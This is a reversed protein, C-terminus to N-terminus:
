AKSAGAAAAAPNLRVAALESAKYGFPLPGHAHIRVARAAEISDELTIAHGGEISSVDIPEVAKHAAELPEAIGLDRFLPEAVKVALEVSERLEKEQQEPSVSVLASVGSSSTVQEAKEDLHKEALYSQRELHVAVHGPVDPIVYKFLVIAGILVHELGIFIQLRNQYTILQFFGKDNSTFMILALNTIVAVMAMAEFSALWVGINRALRPRPRKAIYLLKRSDIWMEVSASVLAVPAALPWSSLFLFSYGWLEWCELYDGSPNYAALESEEEAEPLVDKLKKQAMLMEKRAKGSCCFGFCSMIRPLIIPLFIEQMNGVFLRVILITALQGGLEQMCDPVGEHNHVCTQPHGYISIGWPKAFAVWFLSYFDNIASFATQKAVYSSDWDAETRQGEIDTLVRAFFSYILAMLQIQVATVVSASHSGWGPEIEGREELEVLFVRLWFISLVLVVVCGILFSIVFASIGRRFLRWVANKPFWEPKGTVLSRERECEEQFEPRVAEARYADTTGWDMAHVSQMRRWQEFVGASVAAVLVGFLPTWLASNPSGGSAVQNGYLVAGIVTPLILSITFFRLFAMYFAIESGYYAFTDDVFSLWTFFSSWKTTLRSLAERDHAPFHCVMKKKAVLKDLDLGAGGDASKSEIIRYLLSIGTVSDVPSLTKPHIAFYQRRAVHFPAYLDSYPPSPATCFGCTILTCTGRSVQCCSDETRAYRGGIALDARDLVKASGDANVAFAMGKSQLYENRTMDMSRVVKPELPLPTDAFDAERELRDKTASVEMFLHKGMDQSWWLRVALGAFLCPAVMTERVETLFEDVPDVGDKPKPKAFKLIIRCSQQIAQEHPPPVDTLTALVAEAEDAWDPVTTAATAAM